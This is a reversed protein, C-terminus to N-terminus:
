APLNAREDDFRPPHLDGNFPLMQQVPPSYRAQRTDIDEITDLAAALDERLQDNILCQLKFLAKWQAKTTKKKKM